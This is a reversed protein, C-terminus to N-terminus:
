GEYAPYSTWSCNEGDCIVDFSALKVIRFEDRALCSFLRGHEDLKVCSYDFSPFGTSIGWTARLFGAVQRATEEARVPKAASGCAAAALAFVIAALALTRPFTEM